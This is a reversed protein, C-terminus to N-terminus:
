VYTPTSIISLFVQKERKDRTCNTRLSHAREVPRKLPLPEGNDIFISRSMTNSISALSILSVVSWASHASSIGDHFKVNASSVVSPSSTRSYFARISVVNCIHKICHLPRCHHPSFYAAHVQSVKKTTKHGLSPKVVTWILKLLRVVDRCMLVTPSAQSQEQRHGM